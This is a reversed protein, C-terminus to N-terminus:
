SMHLEGCVEAGDATIQAEPDGTHGYSSWAAFGLRRLRGPSCRAFVDTRLGRSYNELQRFQPGCGVTTIGFRSDDTTNPSAGHWLRADFVFATGAPGTAPVTPIKHPVSADPEQGSLHSKPVIRTAGNQETFDTIMWMANIAAAPAIPRTSPSPDLCTGEARTMSSLKPNSEGPSVPQPMWWQDTHLPMTGTGPHQIQASVCSILYDPGIVHEVLANYFEHEILEFFVDGKNLLMGVWQNVPDTNAPNKMSHQTREVAAQEFLRAQVSKLKDGELARDVLCYGFRELCTKMAEIDRTPAPLTEDQWPTLGAATQSTM